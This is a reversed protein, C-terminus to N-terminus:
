SQVKLLGTDIVLAGGVLRTKFHRLWDAEDTAMRAGQWNSYDDVQIIAGPRINSQLYSLVARTSEYWDCDIHVLDFLRKETPEALTEEYRGPVIEVKDLNCVSGLEDMIVRLLDPVNGYYDQSEENLIVRYREQAREGDKELNPPPIRGFVDYLVLTGEYRNILWGLVTASGGRGVGFEAVQLAEQCRRARVLLFSKALSLLQPYGLYTKRARKLNWALLALRPHILSLKVLSSYKTFMRLNGDIVALSLVSV